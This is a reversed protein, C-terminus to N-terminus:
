KAIMKHQRTCGPTVIVCECTRKTVSASRFYCPFIEIMRFDRAYIAKIM